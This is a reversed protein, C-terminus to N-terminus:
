QEVSCSVPVVIQDSVWPSTALGVTVVATVSSGSGM